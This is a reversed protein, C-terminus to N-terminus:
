ARVTADQERVAAEFLETPEARSWSTPRDTSSTTAASMRSRCGLVPTSDTQRVLVHAAVDEDLHLHTADVSRLRQQDDSRSAVSRCAPRSALNSASAFYRPAEDLLDGRDDIEVRDVLVRVRDVHAGLDHVNSPM